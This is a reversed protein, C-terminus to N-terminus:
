PRLQQRINDLRTRLLETQAVVEGLAHNADPHSCGAGDPARTLFAPLLFTSVEQRIMDPPTASSQDEELYSLFIRLLWRVVADPDLSARVEGRAQAARVLPEWFDYAMTLFAQSTSAMRSTTSAREGSFLVRLIENTRITDLGTVIAEVCLEGFEPHDEALGTSGGIVKAAEELFMAHVVDDRTAFHAYFTARSLGALECITGVTFEASGGREVLGRAAALLRDKAGGPPIARPPTDVASRPTM